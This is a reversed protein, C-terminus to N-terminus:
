RSVGSSQIACAAPATGRPELGARTRLEPLMASGGEDNLRGARRPTMSPGPEVAM